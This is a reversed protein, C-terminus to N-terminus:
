EIKEYCRKVKESFTEVGIGKMVNQSNFGLSRVMRKFNNGDESESSNSDRREEIKKSNGAKKRRNKRTKKKETETETGSHMDIDESDFQDDMSGSPGSSKFYNKIQQSVQKRTAKAPVEDNQPFVIEKLTEFEELAENISSREPFMSDFPEMAENRLAELELLAAIDNRDLTKIEKTIDSWFLVDENPDIKIGPDKDVEGYDLALAKNKM